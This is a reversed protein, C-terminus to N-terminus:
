NSQWGFLSHGASLKRGKLLAVKGTLDLAHVVLPDIPCRELTLHGGVADKAQTAVEIHNRRGNVLIANCNLAGRVCIADVAHLPHRLNRAGGKTNWFVEVNAVPPLQRKLKARDQALAHKGHRGLCYPLERLCGLPFPREELWPGGGM